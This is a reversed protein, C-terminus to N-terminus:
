IGYIRLDNRSSNTMIHLCQRKNSSAKSQPLKVIGSIKDRYRLKTEKLNFELDTSAGTEILLGTLGGITEEDASFKVIDVPEQTVSELEFKLYHDAGISIKNLCRFILASSKQSKACKDVEFREALVQILSQSAVNEKLARHEELKIKKNPNQFVYKFPHKEGNPDVSMILNFENSATTVVLNTSFQNQTLPKCLVKFTETPMKQCAFATQDALTLSLVDEPFQYLVAFGPNIEIFETLVQSDKVAITRVNAFLPPCLL